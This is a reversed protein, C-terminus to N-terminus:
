PAPTKLTIAGVPCVEVCKGCDQCTPMTEENVGYGYFSIVM